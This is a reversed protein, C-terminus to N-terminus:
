CNLSKKNKKSDSIAMSSQEEWKPNSSSLFSKPILRKSANSSDEASDQGCKTLHILTDTKARLKTVNGADKLSKELVVTVSFVTLIAVEAVADGVHTLHNLLTKVCEVSWGM